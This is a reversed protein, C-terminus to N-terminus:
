PIAIRPIATDCYRQQQVNRVPCSFGWPPQRARAAFLLLLLLLFLLLCICNRVIYLIAYLLPEAHRLLARTLCALWRKVLAEESM